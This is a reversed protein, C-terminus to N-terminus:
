DFFRETGVKLALISAYHNGPGWWPDEQELAGTVEEAEGRGLGVWESLGRGDGTSLHTHLLFFSIICELFAVMWPELFEVLRFGM